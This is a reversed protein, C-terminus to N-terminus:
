KVSKEVVAMVKELTYPKSIFDTFGCDKYTELFYDPNHATIAVIAVKNQPHKFTTRIDSTAEFGNMVPMEIDMFIVDISANARFIELAKKGNEATFHKYGLIDAIQSLLYRNDVYDDVILVSITKM